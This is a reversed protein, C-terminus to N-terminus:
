KKMEVNKTQVKHLPTTMEVNKAKHVLQGDLVQEFYDIM